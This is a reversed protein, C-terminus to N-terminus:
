QSPGPMDVEGGLNNPNPTKKEGKALLFCFPLLLNTCRPSLSPVPRLKMRLGPKSRRQLRGLKSVDLCQNPKKKKGALCLLLFCIWSKWTQLGLRQGPQHSSGGVAPGEAASHCPISRHAVSPCAHEAAM